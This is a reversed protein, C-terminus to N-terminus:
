PVIREVGNPDIFRTGRPLAKAEAPTNVRVPAGGQVPGTTPSTPVAATTPQTAAPAAQASSAPAQNKIESMIMKMQRLTRLGTGPDAADLRPLTLSLLKREADSVQGQGKLSINAKMLQLESAAAEYDQRLIESQRGLVGGILRSPNSASIPGISNLKALGEYAQLARDIHPLNVDIQRAREGAQKQDEAINKAVEHRYTKPDAGPPIGTVSPQGAPTLVRAGKGYPDIQVINGFDDKMYQPKEEAQKEAIRTTREQFGRQSQMNEIQAKQFAASQGLQALSLGGQTDGAAILARAAEAYDLPGGQGLQSLTRERIASQRADKYTKGLEGLAGFDVLPVLGAM